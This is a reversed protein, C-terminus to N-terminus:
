TARGGANARARLAQRAIECDLAWSRGLKFAGPLHGEAALNFAKRVPMRLFGAIAEMGYVLEPSKVETQDNRDNM